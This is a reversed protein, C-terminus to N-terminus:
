LETKIINCLSKLLEIMEDEKDAGIASTIILDSRHLRERMQEAKEKGKDTLYLKTYRQDAEDTVKMIYGNAVMEKVTQNVAATTNNLFEALMKQNAGPNKVLFVIIPRYSEPVGAELACKRMHKSWEKYTHSLEMM